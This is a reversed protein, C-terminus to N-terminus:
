EIFGLFAGIYGLRNQDVFYQHLNFGRVTDGEYCDPAVVVKRWGKRVALKAADIALGTEDSYGNHGHAPRIIVRVARPGIGRVLKVHSLGAYGHACDTVSINSDM